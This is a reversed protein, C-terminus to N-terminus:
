TASIMSAAPARAAGVATAFEVWRLTFRTTLQPRILISSAPSFRPRWRSHKITNATLISSTLGDTERGLTEAIESRRRRVIEAAKLFLRAKEAPPTAAWKTFANVAADVALRADARSAAAVRALVNGSYPEHVEFFRKDAAQRWVNQAFFGYEKVYVKASKM